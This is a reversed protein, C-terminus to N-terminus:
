NNKNKFVSLYISLITRTISIYLFLFRTTIMFLTWNKKQTIIFLHSKQYIDNQLEILINEREIRGKGRLREILSVFGKLSVIVYYYKNKIKYLMLQIWLIIICCMSWLGYLTIISFQLLFLMLIYIQTAKYSYLTAHVKYAHLHTCM